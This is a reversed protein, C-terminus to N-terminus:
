RGVRVRYATWDGDTILEGMAALPGNYVYTWAVDVPGDLVAVARRVYESGAENTPDFAELADTAALMREDSVDYLEVVVRGSAELILSPYAYAREATRAMEHLRGAISGFGLFRAGALIGDNPEGRRLTGYVALATPMDPM